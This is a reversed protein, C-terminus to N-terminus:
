LYYLTQKHMCIYNLLIYLIMILLSNLQKKITSRFNICEKIQIISVLNLYQYM